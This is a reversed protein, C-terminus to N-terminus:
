NTVACKEGGVKKRKRSTIQGDAIQGADSLKKAVSTRSILWLTSAELYFITPREGLAERNKTSFQM